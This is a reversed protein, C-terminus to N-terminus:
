GRLGARLLFIGAALFLLAVYGAPVFVAESRRLAIAAIYALVSGAVVLLLGAITSVVRLVPTNM